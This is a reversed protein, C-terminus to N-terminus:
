GVVMGVTMKTVTGSHRALFHAAVDFWGVPLRLPLLGPGGGARPLEGEVREGRGRELGVPDALELLARRPPRGPDVGAQDEGALVALDHVGLVDGLPERSTCSPPRGGIV